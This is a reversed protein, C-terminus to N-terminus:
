YYMAMIEDAFAIFSNDETELIEYNWLPSHTSFYTQQENVKYGWRELEKLKEQEKKNLAEMDDKYVNVLLNAVVVFILVAGGIMERRTPEGDVLAIGTIMGVVAAIVEIRRATKM